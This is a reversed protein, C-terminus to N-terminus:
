SRATNWRTMSRENREQDLRTSLWLGFLMLLGGLAVCLLTALGVYLVADQVEPRVAGWAQLVRACLQKSGSALWAPALGALVTPADRQVLQALLRPALPRMLGWRELLWVLSAAGLLVDLAAGLLAFVTAPLLSIGPWAERRPTQLRAALRAWFLGPSVFSPTSPAQAQVSASVARLEACQRRCEACVGLHQALAAAETTSLAGDIHASLLEPNPHRM